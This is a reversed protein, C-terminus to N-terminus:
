GRRNLGLRKLLNVRLNHYGPPNSRFPLRFRNLYFVYIQGRGLFPLM